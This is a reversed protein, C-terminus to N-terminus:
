RSGLWWGNGRVWCSEDPESPALHLAKVTSLDRESFATRLAEESAADRAGICPYFAVPQTFRASYRHDDRRVILMGGFGGSWTGGGPKPWDGEATLPMVMRGGDRLSKLWATPITSLGASAIVLDLPPTHVELGNVALADAQPWAQLNARAQEALHPEVEAGFVRGGPGVLEAMIATYYGSGTGVHLITDGPSIHAAALTAAWLRPEGNNIGKAGDLEFLVNEYVHAADADPTMETGDLTFRKWPGPGLFLERPVRAFARELAESNAGLGQTVAKAYLRRKEVAREPGQM